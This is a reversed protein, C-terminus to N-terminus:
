AYIIAKNELERMISGAKELSTKESLEYFSSRVFMYDRVYKRISLGFIFIFSAEGIVVGLTTNIPLSFSVIAWITVVMIISVAIIGIVVKVIDFGIKSIVKLLTSAIQVHRTKEGLVVVEKSVKEHDIQEMKESYGHLFDKLNAVWEKNLNDEIEKKMTRIEPKEVFELGLGLGIKIIVFVVSAISLIIALSSLLLTLDSM